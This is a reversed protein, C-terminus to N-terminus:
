PERAAGGRNRRQLGQRRNSGRRRGSHVSGAGAAASGRVRLGGPRHICVCELAVKAGAEFTHPLLARVSDYFHHPSGDKPDNTFPYGGYFWSYKATLPLALGAVKLTSATGDPVSYRVTIANARHKLTFEVRDGEGLTVAMRGSAEGALTKATRDPGIVRGRVSAAEAEYETFPVQAGRSEVSFANPAHAEDHSAPTCATVLLVLLALVPRAGRSSRVPGSLRGPSAGRPLPTAHAAADVTGVRGKVRTLRAAM